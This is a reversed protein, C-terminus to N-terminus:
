CKGACVWFRGGKSWRHGNYARITPYYTRRGEIMNLITCRSRNKECKLVPRPGNVPVKANFEIKYREIPAGGSYGRHKWRILLGGPIDKLTVWKWRMPEPREYFPKPSAVPSWDSVGLSGIERMRWEYTGGPLVKLNACLRSADKSVPKTNVTRWDFTSKGPPAKRMRAQVEFTAEPDAPPTSQIIRTQSGRCAWSSRNVEPSSLHPDEASAGGSGFASSLSVVAISVLIFVIKKM